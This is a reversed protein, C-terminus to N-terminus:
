NSNNILSEELEKKKIAEIIAKSVFDWKKMDKRTEFFDDLKDKVAESIYVTKMSM